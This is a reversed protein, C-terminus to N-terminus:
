KIRKLEGHCGSCGCNYFEPHEVVGCMRAHYYEHGCKKCKVIYKGLKSISQVGLDEYNNLRTVKIGWKKGINNGAREWREGHHDGVACSHAIEHILTNRAAEPKDEFVYNLAIASENTETNYHCRGWSKTSKFMYLKPEKFSYGLRTAEDCIEKYLELLESNTCKKWTRPLNLM